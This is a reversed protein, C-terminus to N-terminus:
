VLHFGFWLGLWKSFRSHIWSKLSRSKPSYLNGTLVTAPPLGSLANHPCHRIWRTVEEGTNGQRQDINASGILEQYIETSDSSPQQRTTHPFSYPFTFLLPCVLKNHIRGLELSQNARRSEKTSLQGIRAEDSSQCMQSEWFM